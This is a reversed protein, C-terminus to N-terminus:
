KERIGWLFLPQLKLAKFIRVDFKRMVNFNQFLYEIVLRFKWASQLWYVNASKFFSYKVKSM